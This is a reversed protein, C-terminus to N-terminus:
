PSLITHSPPAKTRLTAAGSPLQGPGRHPGCLVAGGWAPQPALSGVIQQAAPVPAHVHQARQGVLRSQEQPSLTIKYRECGGVPSVSHQELSVPSM